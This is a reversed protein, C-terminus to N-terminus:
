ANGWTGPMRGAGDAAPWPRVVQADILHRPKEPNRVVYIASIRGDTVQLATTQLDGNTHVTIIGPLGGIRARREV